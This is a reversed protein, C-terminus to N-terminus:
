PTSPGQAAHLFSRDSPLAGNRIFRILLFHLRISERPSGTAPNQRDRVTRFSPMAGAGKSGLSLGMVRASKENSIVVIGDEMLLKGATRCSKQVQRRFIGLIEQQKGFPRM